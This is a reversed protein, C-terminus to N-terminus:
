YFAIVNSSGSFYTVQIASTPTPNLGLITPDIRDVSKITDATLANIPLGKKARLHGYVSQELAEINKM